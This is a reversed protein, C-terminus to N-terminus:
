RLMQGTPNHDLFGVLHYCLHAAAVVKCLVDELSADKQCVLQDLSAEGGVHVLQGFAVPLSAM